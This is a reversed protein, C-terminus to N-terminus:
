KFFTYVTSKGELFNLSVLFQDMKTVTDKFFTGRNFFSHQQGEYLHLEIRSGVDKMKEEFAITSELPTTHDETGFFVITPPVGERINHLPSIENVRGSIARYGYGNQSNDYVPNFLILATPVASINMDDTTENIGPIIGCAAALHGGASGGGAAIKNPDISLQQANKRIYRIASKADKVAEFPTTGHKKKLRYTASIAIIGRSALYQSQREFAKYSGSNWGGGHFFVVCPYKKTTVFLTPKYVYLQLSITDIKKYTVIDPKIKEIRKQANMSFSFLSLSIL